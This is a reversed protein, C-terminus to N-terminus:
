GKVGIQILTDELVRLSGSGFSDIRLRLRFQFAVGRSVYSALSVVLLDELTANGLTIYGLNLDLHVGM